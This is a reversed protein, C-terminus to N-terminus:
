FARLLFVIVGLTLFELIFLKTLSLGLKNVNFFMNNTRRRGAM